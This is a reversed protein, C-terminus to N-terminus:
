CKFYHNELLGEYIELKGLSTMGGHLGTSEKGGPIEGERKGQRVWLALLVPLLLRPM